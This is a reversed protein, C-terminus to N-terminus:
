ERPNDKCQRECVRWEVRIIGRSDQSNCVKLITFLEKDNGSDGCVLIKVPLKGEAKLENLLYALAPGKGGGKPLVHVGRKELRKFLEKTVEQAKSKDTFFRVKNPRQDCKEVDLSEVKTLMRNLIHSVPEFNTHVSSM